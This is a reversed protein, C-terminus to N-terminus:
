GVLGEFSRTWVSFCCCFLHRCIETKTSTFIVWILVSVRLASGKTWLKNCFYSLFLETFEAINFCLSHGLRTHLHTCTSIYPYNLHSYQFATCVFAGSCLVMPFSHPTGVYIHSYIHECIVSWDGCSLCVFLYVSYLSVAFFYIHGNM